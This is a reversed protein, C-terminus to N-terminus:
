PPGLETVTVNDFYVNTNLGVGNNGHLYLTLRNSDVTLTQSLPRWVGGEGGGVWQAPATGDQVGLL